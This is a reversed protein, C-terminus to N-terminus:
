EVVEIIFNWSSDLPFSSFSRRKSANPAIFAIFDYIGPEEPLEITFRGHDVIRLYDHDTTDVFLYPYTGNFVVQERGLFAFILYEELADDIGSRPDLAITQLSPDAFFALDIIEGPSAYIIESPPDFFDLDPLDHDFQQNIQLDLFGQTVPFEVRQLPITNHSTTLRIESENGVTLDYSIVSHM